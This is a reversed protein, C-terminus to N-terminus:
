ATHSRDVAAYFHDWSAALKGESLVAALRRMGALNDKFEDWLHITAPIWVAAEEGALAEVADAIEAATGYFPEYSPLYVANGRWGVGHFGLLAVSEPGGCVVDFREALVDYQRGTFRNFPAVFTRAGLRLEDLTAMGQDLRDGLEENSLGLLESHRRPNSSRTRHDLGHLGFATLDDHRLEVLKAREEQTWERTGQGDPDM